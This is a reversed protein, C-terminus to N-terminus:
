PANQALLHLKSMLIKQGISSNKNKLKLTMLEGGFSKSKRRIKVPMEKGNILMTSIDGSNKRMQTQKLKSKM